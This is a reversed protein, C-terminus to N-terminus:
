VGTGRLVVGVTQALIRLDEILSVRGFYQDDYAARDSFDSTNRTTVQWAGTMGPRMNYYSQGPYLAQQCPMMPRPGVLSMDGVLVNFIQPLEDISTRRLLRGVATCRPDYSLKQKTEWERKAEPNADLYRQLQAEADVDMSRFKWIKFRRGDKGVREQRFIPSKGDSLLIAASILALFPLVFPLSLLVLVVDFLRKIGMRYPGNREVVKGAVVANTAVEIRSAHVTM